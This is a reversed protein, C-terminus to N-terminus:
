IFNVFAISSVILFLRVFFSVFCLTCYMPNDPVPGSWYRDICVFCLEGHDRAIAMILISCFLRVSVCLVLGVVFRAPSFHSCVMFFSMFVMLMFLKMCFV